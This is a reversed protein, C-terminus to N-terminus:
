VEKETYCLIFGKAESFPENQVRLLNRISDSHCILIIEENNKDFSKAQEARVIVHIMSQDIMEGWSCLWSEKYLAFGNHM